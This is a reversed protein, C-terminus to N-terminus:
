PRNRADAQIEKCIDSVAQRAGALTDTPIIWDAKARKEADPMQRDLIMAFSEETMGPRALVRQRQTEANTSVVAVGDMGAAGGTEFLLPIDFVVIPAASNQRLFETRDQALLPHVIAELRAFGAPDALLAAKLAARDVQGDVLADPFAVGVPAVAAGGKAYLRHVAADADWVPHGLDRFMQAATSKGMGIGGTLGLRFSM